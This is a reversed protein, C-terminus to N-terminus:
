STVPTQATCGPEIALNCDDSPSSASQAVLRRKTKGTTAGGRDKGPTVWVFTRLRQRANLADVRVGLDTELHEIEGAQGRHAPERGRDTRSVTPRDVDQDIIGPDHAWGGTQQSLVAELSLDANIIETM